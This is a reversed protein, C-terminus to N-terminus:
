RNQSLATTEGKLSAGILRVIAYNKHAANGPLHTKDACQVRIKIFNDDGGSFQIVGGLSKVESGDFMAQTTASGQTQQIHMWSLLSQKDIRVGENSQVTFHGWWIGNIANAESLKATGIPENFVTPNAYYEPKLSGWLPTAGDLLVPLVGVAMGVAQFGNRYALAKAVPIGVYAGDDLSLTYESDEATLEKILILEDPQAKIAPMGKGGAKTKALNLGINRFKEHFM